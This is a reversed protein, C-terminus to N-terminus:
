ICLGLVVVLLHAFPTLIYDTIFASASNRGSNILRYSKDKHDIYKKLPIIVTKNHLLLWQPSFSPFLNHTHLSSQNLLSHLNRTSVM